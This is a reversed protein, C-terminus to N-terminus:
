NYKESTEDAIDPETSSSRVQQIRLTRTQKSTSSLHSYKILACEVNTRDLRAIAALVDRCNVLMDVSACTRTNYLKGLHNDVACM